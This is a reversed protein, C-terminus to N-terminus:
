LAKCRYSNELWVLELSVVVVALQLFPSLDVMQRMRWHATQNMHPVWAHLVLPLLLRMFIEYNQDSFRALWMKNRYVLLM